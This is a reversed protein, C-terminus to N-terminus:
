SLYRRAIARVRDDFGKSEVVSEREWLGGMVLKVWVEGVDKFFGGVSDQSLPPHLLLFAYGSPTLYCSIQHPPMSDITRLNCHPTLNRYHSVLDLGSHLLFNYYQSRPLTSSSTSLNNLTASYLPKSNPSVLCFLLTSPPSKSM